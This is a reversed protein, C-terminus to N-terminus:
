ITICSLIQIVINTKPSCTKFFVKLKIYFTRTVKREWCCEAKKVMLTTVSVVSYKTSVLMLVFTKLRPSSLSINADHRWWKDLTEHPSYNKPVACHSGPPCSLLYFRTYSMCKRMTVVHQGHIEQHSLIMNLHRCRHNIRLVIDLTLIADAMKSIVIYASKCWLPRRNGCM